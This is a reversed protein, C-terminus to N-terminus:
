ESSRFRPLCYLLLLVLSWALQISSGAIQAWAAGRLFHDPVVLWGVGCTVALTVAFMPLQPAYCRVAALVYGAAAALYGIAAGIMVFRFAVTDAKFAPGYALEILADGHLWAITVTAAALVGALSFLTAARRLFQSTQRLQFHRAISPATSQGLAMVLTNAAVAVCIWASYVGVMEASGFIGLLYRPANANLSLLLLVPGLPAVLRFLGALRVPPRRLVADRRERSLYDLATVCCSSLAIAAATLVVGYGGRVLAFTACSAGVARLIQSSAIRNMREQRQLDGYVIESFGESIRGSAAFMVVAATAASLFALGFVLLLSAALVSTVLRLLFYTAFSFEQVCDTAQVTRLQMQFFVLVPSSVALALAYDGVMGASGWRAMIVLPLWQGAAQAVTGATTWAFNWGLSLPVAPITSATTASM